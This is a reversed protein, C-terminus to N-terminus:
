IRFWDPVEIKCLILIFACITWVLKVPVYFIKVFQEWNKPTNPASVEIKVRELQFAREKDKDELIRQLRKEEAEKEAKIEEETQKVIPM